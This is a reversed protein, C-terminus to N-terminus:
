KKTIDIKGNQYLYGIGYCGKGNGMDCAKKYYEYSKKYNKRKSYVYGVGYCGESNGMKCSKEYYFLAKSLDKKIGKGDLYARRSRYM